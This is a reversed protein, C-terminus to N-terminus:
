TGMAQNLLKMRSAAHDWIIPMLPAIDLEDFSCTPVSVQALDPRHVQLWALVMKGLSGQRKVCVRQGGGPSAAGALRLYEWVKGALEYDFLAQEM